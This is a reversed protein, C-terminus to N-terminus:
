LGMFSQCVTFVYKVTNFVGRLRKRAKGREAQKALSPVVAETRPPAAPTPGEESGRAKSRALKM